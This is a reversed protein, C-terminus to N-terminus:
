RNPRSLSPVLQRNNFVSTLYITVVDKPRINRTCSLEELLGVSARRQIATHLKGPFCTYFHFFQPPELNVTETGLKLVVVAPTDLRSRRSSETHSEGKNTRMEESYCM